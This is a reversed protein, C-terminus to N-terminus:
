DKNEIPHERFDASELKTLEQLKAQLDLLEKHILLIEEPTLSKDHLRSKIGDRRTQLNQRILGEWTGHASKLPDKPFHRLDFSALTSQIGPSLTAQFAAESKGDAPDFNGKLIVELVEWGPGMEAPSPNKREALWEKAEKSGLALKCLLQCAESMAIPAPPKPREPQGSDEETTSGSFRVKGILSAIQRTPLGLRGAALNLLSDRLVADPILSLTGAVRKATESLGQASDLAGSTKALDIQHDILDKAQDVRQRYGEGGEKRIISDPDEKEPLVLVKVGLGEGLLAPLSREVAKLGAADSDFCLVVGSVFRKLLSAQAHTFATGQPAILNQIGNEYATILDFQGECVIATGSDILARKTRHLGFLLRGKTFLPTEPSNIYKAPSTEPNLVRGSFAVVEGSDNHIPIMIRDRFRDSIRSSNEWRACLGSITLEETSFGKTAAWEALEAGGAPAFGLQWSAAVERNLGRSKLYTRASDARHDKLLLNHFWGAAERHLELLRARQSRSPGPDGGEEELLRIGAREALKRVADVFPLQEYDMVFRIVGGGANCGFCHFIQRSPNVTFSPTKEKHFPCLAKFATGARKLQIYGGVVDVIDNAEAVQRISEEAILPM